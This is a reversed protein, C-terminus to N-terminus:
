AYRHSGPEASSRKLMEWYLSLMQEVIRPASWEQEVRKLGEAGMAERRGPDQLLRRMAIALAGSDRPAVLLGNLEHRVVDRCGPVDTAVIAKGCAAAELLVKPLGERYSPLVVLTAAQYVSAMDDRHGWWEVAGESMWQTLQTKAIAAPNDDDCRGVLAFRAEVAEGKLRRAADVFEQVGKDWLMRAPLVVVPKGHPPPKVSFEAIDVGSGPIVRTRSLPVIGRAVLQARDTENQFLVSSDSWRIAAKLGIGMARSLLGRRRDSGTFAYGLGAFANLVAPVRTIRAALSGYLIPKLAVHHVVDPRVGRYLRILEAIARLERLPHWSRRLLSIPILHFGERRIREGHDTVRTAVTVDFGAAQAARALDLRHSWFYWDETILYLLRPREQTM